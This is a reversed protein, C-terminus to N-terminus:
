KRWDISDGKMLDIMTTCPSRTAEESSRDSGSGSGSDSSEKCKAELIALRLENILRSWNSGTTLVYHKAEMAILLAILSHRGLSRTGQQALSMPSIAKVAPTIKYGNNNRKRPGPKPKVKVNKRHPGAPSSSKDHVHKVDSKDSAGGLLSGVIPSLARSRPEDSGDLLDTLAEKRKGRRGLRLRSTDIPNINEERGRNTSTGNQMGGGLAVGSRSVNRSPFNTFQEPNRTQFGSVEGKGALSHRYNLLTWNAYKDKNFEKAFANYAEFTETTLYVHPRSMRHEAVLGELTQMYEQVGV